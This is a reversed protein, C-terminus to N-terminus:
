LWKKKKFYLLMIASLTIMSGIIAWFSLPNQALTINLATNMSFINAVLGLPLTISSLVTLIKVIDSIKYSLLSENTEEISEIMEKHNELTNWVRINSGIVEQSVFDLDQDFFASAKKSLLELISRQPKITRRFDIIDRKVIAIESLMEREHGSFTKNEINEINEDIHDLMPLCSDVLKDLMFFLLLGASKFYEERSVMQRLCEEFFSELQPIKEQSLTVIASPTIIFDLEKPVTLRTEHNFVPFHLVLFLYGFYEEIKPRRISKPLQQVVANALHFNEKLFLLDRTDPCCSNIWGVKNYEIQQM